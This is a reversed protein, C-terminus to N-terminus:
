TLPLEIQGTLDVAVSTTMSSTRPLGFREAQTRMGAM